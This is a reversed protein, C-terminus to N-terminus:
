QLWGILRGARRVEAIWAGEFRELVFVLSQPPEVGVYEASRWRDLALGAEGASAFRAAEAPRTVLQLPDLDGSM